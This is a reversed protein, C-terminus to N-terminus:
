KISWKGPAYRSAAQQETLDSLIAITDAHSKSLTIIIDGDPVLGVYKGYYPAYENQDPRVTRFSTSM